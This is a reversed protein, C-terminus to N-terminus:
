FEVLMALEFRQLKRCEVLFNECLAIPIGSIIEAADLEDDRFAKRPVRHGHRKLTNSIENRERELMGRKTLGIVNSKELRLVSTPNIHLLALLKKSQMALRMLTAGLVMSLAMNEWVAGEVVLRHRRQYEYGNVM